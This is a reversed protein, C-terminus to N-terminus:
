MDASDVSISCLKISQTEERTIASYFLKTARKQLSQVSVSSLVCNMRIIRLM